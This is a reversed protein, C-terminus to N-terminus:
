VGDVRAPKRAAAVIQEARLKQFRTRTRRRFNKMKEGRLEPKEGADHRNRNSRAINPYGTAHFGLLRDFARSSLGFECGVQATVEITAEAHKHKGGFGPYGERRLAVLRANVEYRPTGPERKTGLRHPAAQLRYFLNPRTLFFHRIAQVDNPDSKKPLGLEKRGRSTFISRM